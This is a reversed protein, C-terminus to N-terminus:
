FRVKVATEDLDSGWNGNDIEMTSQRENNENRGAWVHHKHNIQIRIPKYLRRYRWRRHIDDSNLHVLPM